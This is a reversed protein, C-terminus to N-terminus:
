GAYEDAAIQRFNGLNYGDRGFVTWTGNRNNRISIKGRGHLRAAMIHAAHDLDTARVKEFTQGFGSTSHFYFTM